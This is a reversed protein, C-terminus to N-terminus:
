FCGGRPTDPSIPDDSRCLVWTTVAGAAVGGVIIAARSDMISRQAAPIAGAARKKRKKQPVERTTEQGANLTSSGSEDAVLLDGKTATV